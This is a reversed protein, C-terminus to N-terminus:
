KQKNKVLQPYKQLLKQIKPSIVIECYRDGAQINNNYYKQHYEEATYFKDLPQIETRIPGSFEGASDLEKKMKEAAKHQEENTYLIISRYQTGVDAGQQNLTTPDHLHWFVDLLQNYTIVSSDFTVQIVEAHGTEGESVRYYTPNTTKGGAYGSIVSSIGKLRQFVAETCWFCGGGFVAIEQNKM